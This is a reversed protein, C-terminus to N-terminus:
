LRIASPGASDEMSVGREVMRQTTAVSARGPRSIKDARPSAEAWYAMAAVAQAGGIAYVNDRSGCLYLAAFTVSEETFVPTTVVLNEVGAVLAPVVTM